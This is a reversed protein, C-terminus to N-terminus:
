VRFPDSRLHFNLVAILEYVEGIGVLDAVTICDLFLLDESVVREVNSIPEIVKFPVFNRQYVIKLESFLFLLLIVIGGTIGVSFMIAPVEATDGVSQEKLLLSLLKHDGSGHEKESFTVGTM